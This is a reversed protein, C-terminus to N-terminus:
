ENAVPDAYVLREVVKKALVTESIIEEVDGPKVQLYAIEEPYIVIVPGRECFGPCGTERIDVKVDVQGELRRRQIAEKFAAVVKMAGLAICGTGTCVAICSKKPDRKSLIEKRVAELEAPSSIRPM